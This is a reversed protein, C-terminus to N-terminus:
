EERKTDDDTSAKVRQKTALPALGIGGSISHEDTKGEKGRKLEVTGLFLVM